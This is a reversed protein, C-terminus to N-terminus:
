NQLFISRLKRFKPSEIAKNIIEEKAAKTERVEAKLM